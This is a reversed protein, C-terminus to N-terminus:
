QGKATVDHAYIWDLRSRVFGPAVSGALWMPGYTGLRALASRRHFLGMNARSAAQMRTTRHMRRAEYRALGASVDGATKLSDALVWADEIAMAAGQAQFPLMPHCADGLLAVPGDTWRQLPNRDFLAWRFHSDAKNILETITLDWGAFDALAEAKSGKETWSETTWDSREVVGVFNALEGNRVRYTVAHRGKGAWVCATPPPLRDLREIPVTARWAVNGTFRPADPGAIQARLRSHIGDAGVILSGSLIAGSDLKLQPQDGDTSYQEARTGFRIEAQGTKLLEAALTEVLDARHVHYYPAGWGAEDLPIRFVPRGSRGLRLELAEPEFAVARVADSVGLASLVKVANPGLQLGAGVERFGSAAELIHVAWGQRALALGATLGGIGAGAILALRETSSPGSTSPM